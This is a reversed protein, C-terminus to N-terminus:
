IIEQKKLKIKINEISKKVSSESPGGELKRNNVANIIDIAGFIDEKFIDSHKKYDALTLEELKKNSKEAYLVLKGTIEHASRFPVGKKVLYDAVETANTFGSYASNKLVEKNFTISSLMKTFVLLSNIITEESDFVSIKDEQMDKNYALPLSKLVTLINFLNGYIRGTKGRILEAIDPNRKQPMISSGTSFADDIKIFKFEDTSWLIIEECFRSLHMSVMSCCFLFEAVFDRDSVGDISNNTVGDFGLLEAVRKRNIPYTTGALACIGLPLINVRKFCDSFREYDRLFMECYATLHHALTTPQAKQLHTYGCMITNLNEESIVILKDILAKLLEKICNIDAKIYMRFDTAVQDNRSRATHLKKGTEGIRKILEGEIFMHIDEADNKTLKGSDIDKEIAKLEAIIKDSEAKEIIKCESLMTCHAISGAIDYKYLKFDFDLSKNFEHALNDTNKEFRGSWLKQSM